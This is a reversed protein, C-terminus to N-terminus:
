ACAPDFQMGCLPAMIAGVGAAWAPAVGIASLAQAYARRTAAAHSPAQPSPLTCSPATAMAHPCPRRRCPLAPCCNPM